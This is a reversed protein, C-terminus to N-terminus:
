PLRRLCTFYKQISLFMTKAGHIDLTKSFCVLMKYKMAINELKSPQEEEQMECQHYTLTSTGARNMIITSTRKLLELPSALGLM